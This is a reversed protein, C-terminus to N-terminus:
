AVSILGLLPSVVTRPLRTGLPGRRQGFPDRRRPVLNSYMAAVALTSYSHAHTLLYQSPRPYTYARGKSETKRVYLVGLRMVWNSAHVVTKLANKENKLHLWQRVKWKLPLSCLFDWYPWQKYTNRQRRLLYLTRLIELSYAPYQVAFRM